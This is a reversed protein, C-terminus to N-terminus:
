DDDDDDDDWDDDEDMDDITSDILSRPEEIVDFDIPTPQSVINSNLAEKSFLRGILFM